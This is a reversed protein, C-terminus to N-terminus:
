ENWGEGPVYEGEDNYKGGHKDFGEKNFYVGDPDWFSGNPTIFFGDNDYEGKTDETWQREIFSDKKPKAKTTKNQSSKNSSKAKSSM